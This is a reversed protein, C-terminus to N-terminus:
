NIKSIWLKGDESLTYKEDYDLLRLDFLLEIVNTWKSEVYSEFEYIKDYFFLKNEEVTFLWARTNDYLLKRAAAYRHCNIVSTFLIELIEDFTKGDIKKYFKEPNAETNDFNRIINKQEEDFMKFRRKILLLLILLDAFDRNKDHSKRFDYFINRENIPEKLSIGFSEIKEMISGTNVEEPKSISFIDGIHTKIQNIDLSNLIEKVTAGQPKIKLVDIIYSLTYELIDMFYLNHVYVALQKNINGLGTYDISRIDNDKKVEGFYFGDRIAQPLESKDPQAEDIIRMIAFLTLRRLRNSETTDIAVTDKGEMFKNFRNEDFDINTGFEDKKTFGFFVKRWLEIEEDNERVKCACHDILKALEKKEFKGDVFLKENDHGIKNYVQAIKMGVDSFKIGEDDKWFIQLAALSGTYYYNGYGQKNNRGFKTLKSVDIFDNEELFTEGDQRNRIGRPYDKKGLHHFACILTFVKEMNLITSHPLGKNKIVHWAWTLFSYYRIRDTQTIIGDLFENEAFKLGSLYLPDIIRDLKVKKTWFVQVDKNFLVM